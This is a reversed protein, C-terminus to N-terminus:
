DGRIFTHLKKFFNIFGQDNWKAPGVLRALIQGKKTLVFTTPLGKVPFAQKIEDQDAIGMTFFYNYKKQFSEVREKTDGYNVAIIELKEKDFVKQLKDMEPMEVLCPRCWTAWFNLIIIDATRDKLATDLKTQIHFFKLNKFQINEPPIEFYNATFFANIEETSLSIDDSKKKNCSFLLFILILTIFYFKNKSLM